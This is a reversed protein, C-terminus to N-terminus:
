LKPAIALKFNQGKGLFKPGILNAGFHDWIHKACVFQSLFINAGLIQVGVFHPDLQDRDFIGTIM